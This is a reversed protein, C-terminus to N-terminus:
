KSIAMESGQPCEFSAFHDIQLYILGASLDILNQQQALRVTWSPLTAPSGPRHLSTRAEGLLGCRRGM